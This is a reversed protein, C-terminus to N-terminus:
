QSNFTLFVPLAIGSTITRLRKAGGPSYVTVSSNGANVVYVNDDADVAAVAKLVDYRCLSFRRTRPDREVDGLKSSRPRPLYSPLVCKNVGPDRMHSGMRIAM